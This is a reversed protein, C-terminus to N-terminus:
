GAGQPKLLANIPKLKIYSDQTQFQWDLRVPPRSRQDQWASSEREVAARDSIRRRPCQLALVSLEGGVPPISAWSAAKNPEPGANARLARAACITRALM